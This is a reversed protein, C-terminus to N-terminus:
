DNECEGCANVAWWKDARDERTEGGGQQRELGEVIERQAQQRALCLRM